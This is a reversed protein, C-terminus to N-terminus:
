LGPNLAKLGKLYNRRKTLRESKGPDEDIMPSKAFERIMQESMENIEDNQDKLKQLFRLFNFRNDSRIKDLRYNLLERIGFAIYGKARFIRERIRRLKILNARNLDLWEINFKGTETKEELRYNEMELHERPDHEDPRLIIFGKSLQAENPFFDSKLRNCKACSWMLNTYRNVLDPRHKQPYYHDIEFGIGGAECETMTCYSCSYYFDFRLDEQYDQYRSKEQVESRVVVPVTNSNKNM